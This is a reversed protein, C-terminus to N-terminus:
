CDDEIEVVKKGVILGHIKNLLMNVVAITCIIDVASAVFMYFWGFEDQAPKLPVLAKQQGGEEIVSIGHQTFMEPTLNFDVAPRFDFLPLKMYPNARVHSLRQFISEQQESGEVYELSQAIAGGFVADRQRELDLKFNILDAQTPVFLGKVGDIITDGLDDIKRGIWQLPGEETLDVDLNPAIEKQYILDLKQLILDLRHNTGSLNVNIDGVGVNIENIGTGIGDLQDNISPPEPEPMSVDGWVVPCMVFLYVSFDTLVNYNLSDPNSFGDEPVQVAVARRCDYSISGWEFSNAPHYDALCLMVSPQNNCLENLITSSSGVPTSLAWSNTVPFLCRPVRNTYTQYVSVLDSSVWFPTYSNSHLLDLESYYGSMNYSSDLVFKTNSYQGCSVGMAFRLGDLDTLNVSLDFSFQFDFGNSHSSDPIRLPVGDWKYILFNYGCLNSKSVNGSSDVIWGSLDARNSSQVRNFYYEGSSGNDIAIPNKVSYGSIFPNPLVSSSSCSQLISSVIEQSSKYFEFNVVEVSTGNYFYAPIQSGFLALSQPVTLEVPYSVSGSSSGASTSTEEASAVIQSFPFLVFFCVILVVSCFSFFRKQFHLKLIIM